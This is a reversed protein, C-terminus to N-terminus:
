QSQKDHVAATALTLNKIKIKRLIFKPLHVLRSNIISWLDPCQYVVGGLIYYDALPIVAHLYIHADYIHITVGYMCSNHLFLCMCSDRSQRNAKRIVYLIPEQVHLVHYEVGTM